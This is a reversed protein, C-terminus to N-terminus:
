SVIFDLEIAWYEIGEPAPNGVGFFISSPKRGNLASIVALNVNDIPLTKIVTSSVLEDTIGVNNLDCLDFLKSEDGCEQLTMDIWVQGAVSKVVREPAKKVIAREKNLDPNTQDPVSLIVGPVLAETISVGNLDAADFLQHERVLDSLTHGNLVKISQM